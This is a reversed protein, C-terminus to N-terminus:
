KKNPTDLSLQRELYNGGEVSKSHAFKLAAEAFEKTDSPLTFYKFNAIYLIIDSDSINELKPLNRMLHFCSNGGYFGNRWVFNVQLTAYCDGSLIGIRRLSFLDETHGSSFDCASFNFNKPNDTFLKKLEYEPYGCVMSKSSLEACPQLGCIDRFKQQLREDASVPLYMAMRREDFAAENGTSSPTMTSAVGFDFIHEIQSREEESLETRALLRRLYPMLDPDRQFYIRDGQTVMADLLGIIEVPPYLGEAASPFGSMIAVPAAEKGFKEVLARACNSDLNVGVGITDGRRWQNEIETFRSCEASTAISSLSCLFVFCYALTAM